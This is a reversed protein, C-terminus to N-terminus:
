RQVEQMPGRLGMVDVAKELEAANNGLLVVTDAERELCWWVYLPELAARHAEFRARRVRISYELQRM